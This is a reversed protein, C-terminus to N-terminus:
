FTANLDFYLHPIILSNLRAAFPYLKCSLLYIYCITGFNDFKTHIKKANLLTKFCFELDANFFM